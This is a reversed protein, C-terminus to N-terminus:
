RCDWYLCLKSATTRDDWDNPTHRESDKTKDQASHEEIEGGGFWFSRVLLFLWSAPFCHTTRQVTFFYFHHLGADAVLWQFTQWSVNCKLQLNRIKHIKYMYGCHEGRGSQTKTEYLTHVDKRHSGSHLRFIPANVTNQYHIGRSLETCQWLKNISNCEQLLYGQLIWLRRHFVWKDEYLLAVPLTVEHWGWKLKM